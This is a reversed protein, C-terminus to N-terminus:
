WSYCALPGSDAIPPQLHNLPHLFNKLFVHVPFSSPPRNRSANSRRISKDPLRSVIEVSGFLRGTRELIPALTLPFQMMTSLM